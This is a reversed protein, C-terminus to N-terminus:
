FGCKSSKLTFSSSVENKGFYFLTSFFSTINVVFCAYNIAVNSSWASDRCSMLISVLCLDLKFTVCTVEGIRATFPLRNTPFCGADV